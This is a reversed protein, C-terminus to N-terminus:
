APSDEPIDEPAPDAPHNVSRRLAIAATVEAANPSYAEVTLCAAFITDRDYGRPDRMAARAYWLTDPNGPMARPATPADTM